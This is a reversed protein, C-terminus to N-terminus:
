QEANTLQLETYGPEARLASSVVRRPRPKPHTTPKSGGFYEIRDVRFGYGGGTSGDFDFAFTDGDVWHTWFGSEYEGELAERDKGDAYDFFRAYGLSDGPASGVEAFHVRIRTAGPETIEYDQRFGPAYPHKTELQSKGLSRSSPMLVAKALLRHSWDGTKGAKVRRVRYVHGSGVDLGDDVFPPENVTAVVVGDREVEYREESETSWDLLISGPESTASLEKSSVDRLAADADLMGGSKVMGDLGVIRMRTRLIRDAVEVVSLRRFKKMLLAAVGAVHPAAQSTGNLYAYEDGPVSSLIGQGPAAIDVHDPGYSSTDSLEGVNTVNAVSIVNPLPFSSPFNQRPTGQNDASCVFLIDASEMADKVAPDQYSEDYSHGQSVSIVRIGLTKAYAIADIFSQENAKSTLPVLKVKPAVGVIGTGNKIRASSIGAVHTAHEGAEGLGVGVPIDGRFNCGWVDDVCGNGDDDVGDFDEDRNRYIQNQLDEHDVDVDVTEAIGVLVSSSGQTIDWARPANIDVGPIGEVVDVLTGDIVLPVAQGTNRLGWQEVFLPDNPLTIAQRARGLVMSGYGTEMEESVGSCATACLALGGVVITKMECDRELGLAGECELPSALGGASSAARAEASRCVVEWEVRVPEEADVASVRTWLIVRDPLPDGSAVGHLFPSSPQKPDHTNDCGPLLPILTAPAAQQLFRRRTLGM